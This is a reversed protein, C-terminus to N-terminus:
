LSLSRRPSPTSFPSVGGQQNAARGAPLLRQAGVSGPAVAGGRGRRKKGGSNKIRKHATLLFCWFSASKLFCFFRKLSGQGKRRESRSRRPSPACTMSALAPSPLLSTTIRSQMMLQRPHKASCGRAGCWDGIGPISSAQRSSSYQAEVRCLRPGELEDIALATSGFYGVDLAMAMKVSRTRAM